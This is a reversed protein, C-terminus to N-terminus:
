TIKNLVPQQGGKLKIKNSNDENHINNIITTNGPM